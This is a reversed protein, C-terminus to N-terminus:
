STAELPFVDSGLGHGSRPHTNNGDDMVGLDQARGTSDASHFCLDEARRRHDQLSDDQSSSLPLIMIRWSRAQCSTSPPLVNTKFRRYDHRARECLSRTGSLSNGASVTALIPLTGQKSTSSTRTTKKRAKDQPQSSWRDLELNIEVRCRRSGSLVSQLVQLTLVVEREATRQRSAPLSSSSL